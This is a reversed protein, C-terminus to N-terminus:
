LLLFVAKIEPACAYLAHGDSCASANLGKGNTEVEVIQQKDEPGETGM